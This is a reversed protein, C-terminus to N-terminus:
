HISKELTKSSGKADYLVVSLHINKNDHDFICTEKSCTGLKIRGSDYVTHLHYVDGQIGRQLNNATYIITYHMMTYKEDICSLTFRVAENDVAEFALADKDACTSENLTQPMVIYGTGTVTAKTTFQAYSKPLAYSVVCVLSFFVLLIVKSMSKRDNADEQAIEKRNGKGM